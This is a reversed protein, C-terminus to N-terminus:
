FERLCGGFGMQWVRLEEMINQNEQHLGKVLLVSLILLISLVCLM